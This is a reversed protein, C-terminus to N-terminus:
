SGEDRAPEDLTDGGMAKHTKRGNAQCASENGAFRKNKGATARPQRESHPETPGVCNVHSRQRENWAFDNLKRQYQRNDAADFECPLAYLIRNSARMTLASPGDRPNTNELKSKENKM